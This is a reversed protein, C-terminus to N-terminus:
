ASSLEKEAKDLEATLAKIFVRDFKIPRDTNENFKKARQYLSEPIEFGIRHYDAKKRSKTEKETKITEQKGNTDKATTAM